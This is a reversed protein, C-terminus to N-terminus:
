IQKSLVASWHWLELSSLPFVSCM